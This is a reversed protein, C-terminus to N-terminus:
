SAVRCFIKNEAPCNSYSYKSPDAMLRWTDRAANGEASRLTVVEALLLSGPTCSLGTRTQDVPRWSPGVFSSNSHM